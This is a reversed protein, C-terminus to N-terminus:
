RSICRHVPAPPAPGAAFVGAAQLENYLGIPDGAGGVAHNPDWLQLLGGSIHAIKPLRDIGLLLTRLQHILGLREHANAGGGAPAAVGPAAALLAASNAAVYGATGGPHAIHFLALWRDSQGGRTTFASHIAARGAPLPIAARWEPLADNPRTALGTVRGVQGQPLHVGNAM